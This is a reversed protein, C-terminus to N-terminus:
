THQNWDSARVNKVRCVNEQGRTVSRDHHGPGHHQLHGFLVKESEEAHTSHAYATCPKSPGKLGRAHM